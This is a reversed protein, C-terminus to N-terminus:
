DSIILIVATKEQSSRKTPISLIATFLWRNLFVSVTARSKSTNVIKFQCQTNRIWITWKIPTSAGTNKPIPLRKSNSKTEKSYIMMMIKSNTNLRMRYLITQNFAAPWLKGRWWKLMRWKWLNATKKFSYTRRKM